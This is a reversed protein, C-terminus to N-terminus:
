SALLSDRIGRANTMKHQVCNRLQQRDMSVSSLSHAHGANQKADPAAAAHPSILRM